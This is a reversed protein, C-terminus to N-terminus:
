LEEEDVNFTRKSKATFPTPLYDIDASTDVEMQNDDFDSGNGAFGADCPEGLDYNDPEFEDFTFIM